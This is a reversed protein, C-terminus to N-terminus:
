AAAVLLPLLVVFQSGHGLGASHAVVSGGHAEVLDRVVALGIGLGERSVAVAHKDQVFLEFVHPLAEASIGIGNDAIAIEVMAGRPAVALSIRGGEPTYKAANELLNVLAQVLRMADGHVSLADGPVAVDFRHKREDMAPRVTEIASDLVGRLDINSRELRFKGASVRSGDLLDGILRGMHAVQSTITAQLGAFKIDDTRANALMKAALRLPLLPNRLEHAVMALFTIQRAHEAHVDAEEERSAAADLRLQENEAALALAGLSSHATDAIAKARAAALALHEDALRARTGRAVALEDQSRALEEYLQALEARVREAQEDLQRLNRTAAALKVIGFNTAPGALGGLRLWTTGNGPRQEESITV